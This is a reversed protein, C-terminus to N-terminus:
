YKFMLQGQKCCLDASWQNIQPRVQVTVTIVSTGAWSVAGPRPPKHTASMRKMGTASNIHLLLIGYRTDYTEHLVSYSLWFTIVLKLLPPWHKLHGTSNSDNFDCTICLCIFVYGLKILPAAPQNNGIRYWRQLNLKEQYLKRFEFCPYKSVHLIQFGVGTKYKPCPGSLLSYFTRM